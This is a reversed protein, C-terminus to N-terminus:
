LVGLMFPMYSGAIFLYIAAHDLRHLWAKFRGIPAAHYLTSAGCLM